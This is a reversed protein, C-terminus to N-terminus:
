RTFTQRCSGDPAAVCITIQYGGLASFNNPCAPEGDLYVALLDDARSTVLVRLTAPDFVMGERAGDLDLAHARAFYEDWGKPLLLFKDWGQDEEVTTVFVHGSTGILPNVAIMRLPVPEGGPLRTIAAWGLFSDDSGDVVAIRYTDITAVYVYNRLADVAIGYPGGSHIDVQTANGAGDIVTVKGEGHISVYAKNTIPNVAVRAPELGVPITQVVSNSTGDLVSVTGGGFNAVYVRNTTDNVALGNPRAGVPITDMLAYDGARLVSVTNANRNAVYIRDNAANYAVVTPGDGVPVTTLLAYTEADFVSLSDAAYNAVYLRKAAANLALGHPADGTPATAWLAPYCDPPGPMPTPTPGPTPTPVPGPGACVEVSVDDVYFGTVGNGDGDNYANFYVQVTEGAYASLDYSQNIWTTDSLNARMLIALLHDDEDLLLAEQRDGADLESVPRFWFTLTASDLTAPLTIAQRASSYSLVDTEGPKLGLLMSRAGSHAQVTTYRAPRPTVGVIWASDTEFGGNEIREECDPVPAPAHNKLVLPLYVFGGWPPRFHVTEVDCVGDACATVLATGPTVISALTATALGGSTPQTTTASGGGFTGLTTTFTVTTGDAVPLGLADLVEATLTSTSVGDALIFRPAATLALTQAQLAEFTVSAFAQRGPPITTTMGPPPLPATATLWATGPSLPATLTATVLGSALSVSGPWLAGLSADLEVGIGDPAHHGAGDLMTVTLEAESVGDAPLTSPSAALALTVWPTYLLTGSLHVGPAPAETGWWNGSVDLAAAHWSELEFDENDWFGNNHLVPTSDNTAAYALGDGRNLYVSNNDFSLGTTGSVYVGALYSPAGGWGSETVHNGSVAVGDSSRVSLGAAVPLDALLGALPGARPDARRLPGGGSGNAALNVVNGTVTLNSQHLFSLGEGKAHGVFNDAVTNGLGPAGPAGQLGIGVGDLFAISNDAIVNNSSEVLLIGFPSNEIQNRLFQSHDTSGLIAGGVPGDWHGNLRLLCDAVVNRESAAHLYLGYYGYSIRCHQLTNGSGVLTIGDWAVPLPPALRTTFTIPQAPTGVATLPGEAVLGTEGEFLVTVGPSIVLSATPVITVTGSVVYPSGAPTWVAPAEIPGHVYTPGAAPAAPPAAALIAVLLLLLLSIVTAVFAVGRLRVMTRIGLTM